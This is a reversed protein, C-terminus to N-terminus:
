VAPDVQSNPTLATFKVKVGGRRGGTHQGAAQHSPQSSALLSHDGRMPRARDEQQSSRAAPLRKPTPKTAAPAPAPIQRSPEPSAVSAAPTLCRKYFRAEASLPKRLFDFAPDDKHKTRVWAEFTPGHTRVGNAWHRIFEQVEDSLREEMASFLIPHVSTVAAQVGAPLMDLVASVEDQLRSIWAAGKSTDGYRQVGLRRTTEEMSAMASEMKMLVAQVTEEELKAGGEITARLADLFM